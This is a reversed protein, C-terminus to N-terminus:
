PIFRWFKKSDFSCHKLTTATADNTKVSTSNRNEMRCKDLSWFIWSIFLLTYFQINRTTIIRTIHHTHHYRAHYLVYSLTCPIICIIIHMFLVYSLACSYYMHYHAHIIGTIVICIIIICMSYYMHRLCLCGDIGKVSNYIRRYM